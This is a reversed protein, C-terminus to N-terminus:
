SGEKQQELVEGQKTQEALKLYQKKSIFEPENSKKFPNPQLNPNIVNISGGERTLEPIVIKAPKGPEIWWKKSESSPAPLDKEDDEFLYLLNSSNLMENVEGHNKRYADYLYNSMEKKIGENIMHISIKFIAYVPRHDSFLLETLSDYLLQKIIKTRSLSLIRDTWAPVRQKEGTDYNKTGNDYKYTPPFKIEMEDFFPFTEGDAMQKNLQDYEFIKGFQGQEILPKVQDNTLGIRYNLDGLWIVADHDKIRRNKSFKIGKAITKYNNHREDVNSLGAALHSAVLCIDTNSYHFSVAVGGKNASMGGLGTKKIAGEINSVNSLEKEKIFLLLAIGGIQGSWLSVYKCGEPNQKNLCEKIKVEWFLRNQSHTNVMQGASLEVIEQFGIFVLDYSKEVKYKSTPFIWEHIDAESCTGNVNFTSSYVIIDKYSSYEKSRLNLEKQVYDHIPNRLIISMQDEMRGLLKLMANDNPSSEVVFYKKTFHSKVSSKLSNSTQLKPTRSSIFGLTIKSLYEENENWLKAHKLLLDNDLTFNMDRMALEIVEQSIIKSLFNAKDLNDFSNVRFVGLQKGVDNDKSLDYFYAGFEIVSDVLSRMITDPNLATYGQKKMSATSIPLNTLGLKYSLSYQSNTDYRELGSNFHNIHEIYEKNLQGKYTKIDQSLSNIIHVEGFQAALKDFHRTFAIQSAEFSNPFVIKKTKKLTLLTKKSFNNELEWYISVNGRVIVYALCFQKTYIIIESELFNAVAGEDDSGWDGFIPGKRICGQKSILTLLADEGNSIKTNVTQAFGRTITVLFGSRDFYTQETESLRNRFEILESNMFSNWLYREFYPSDAILNFQPKSSSRFGREQLNSTIDFNRSYFFSGGSLLKRVSKAQTEIRNHDQQEDLEVEEEKTNILYDYEDSNLCFFEVGTIKHVNEGLIPLAVTESSAIFGLYINGKDNYLGLFGLLRNKGLKTPTIDKFKSLNVYSKAVFEVIVKTSKVEQSGGSHQNKHTYKPFPHRIILAHSESTVIFTRPNENLFLKM